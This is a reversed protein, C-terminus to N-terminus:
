KKKDYKLCGIFMDKYYMIMSKFDYSIEYPTM